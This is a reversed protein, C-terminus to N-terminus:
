EESNDEFLEGRIDVKRFPTQEKANFVYKGLDIRAFNHPCRRQSLPPLEMYNPGYAYTLYPVPHAPTPAKIGEFDVYVVEDLGENPLPDAYVKKGVSDILWKANKKYRYFKACFNFVGHFIGWPICKLVPLMLKSFMFHYNRRPVGYWKILMLTTLVTLVYSHLRQFLKINSTRDYILLDIFVGDPYVNKNSFNTSFYTADLRIKDITYHSGAKPGSYSFGKGLATKCVKRFKEFDDRLMGIDLDDDWPISGGQRVAGLLTGGALFYQIGHARCIRDIEKLVEVELAQITKIKGCYFEVNKSNDYEAGTHYSVLHQVGARLLRREPIAMKHLKLASLVRYSAAGGAAREVKLAFLDKAAVYIMQKLDAASVKECDANYVHGMRARDMALFLDYCATRIYSASFVQKRDVDTIEVCKEAFCEGIIKEVDLGPTHSREPALVNTFRLVSLSVGEEAVAKRCRRELNLYFELGPTKECVKEIYFNYEREALATIEQSFAPTEPLLAGVICRSDPYKAMYALMQELAGLTEQEKGEQCDAFFFFLAAGHASELEAMPLVPLEEFAQKRAESEQGSQLYAVQEFMPCRDNNACLAPFLYDCILNDDGLFYVKRQKKFRRIKALKGFHKKIIDACMVKEDQLILERM